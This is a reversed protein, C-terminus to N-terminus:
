SIIALLEGANVTQGENVLLREVTGRKPACIENQMKMAEVVLLGQKAEVAEGAKVLLRVIKGPMSAIVQQRGEAELTGSRRRWQRPDRVEVQFERGAAHVRLRGDSEEVRVEFSQGDLLISYIGPSVEVVESQIPKGDLSLSLGQRLGGTNNAPTIEVARKRDAIQVVFKM